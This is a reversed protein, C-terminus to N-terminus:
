LKKKLCQFLNTTINLYELATNKEPVDPNYDPYRGELQYKMLVGM